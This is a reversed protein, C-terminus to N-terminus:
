PNVAAFHNRERRETVVSSDPLILRAVDRFSAGKIQGRATARVRPWVEYTEITLSIKEGPKFKKLAATVKPGAREDKLWEGVTTKIAKTKAFKQGAQDLAGEQIGEAAKLEDLFQRIRTVVYAVRNPAAGHLLLRVRTATDADMVALEKETYTISEAARWSALSYTKRDLGILNGRMLEHSCAGFTAEIKQAVILPLPSKLGEIAALTGKSIGAHDAFDAQSMKAIARLQPIKTPLHQTPM